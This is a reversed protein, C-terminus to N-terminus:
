EYEKKIVWNDAALLTDIEDYVTLPAKVKKRPAKKTSKAPMELEATVDDVEEM